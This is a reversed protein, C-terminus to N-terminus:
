KQSFIVVNELFAKTILSMIESKKKKELDRYRTSQYVVVPNEAAAEKM